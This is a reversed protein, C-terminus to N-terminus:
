NDTGVYRLPDLPRHQSDRVEFILYDDTYDGHLKAGLEGLRQSTSVMDGQKVEIYGLNIYRTQFDGHDIWVEGAQYQDPKIVLTVRGQFAALVPDGRVGGIHIGATVTHLASSFAKGCGLLIPGRLPLTLKEAGQEFVALSVYPQAENDNGPPETEGPNLEALDDPQGAGKDPDFVLSNTPSFQWWVLGAIGMVCLFYILAYRFGPSASRWRTVVWKQVKALADVVNRIVKKAKVKKSLDKM